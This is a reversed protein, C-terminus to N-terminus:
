LGHADGGEWIIKKAHLDLKYFVNGEELQELEQVLQYDEEELSFTVREKKEVLWFTAQIPHITMKELLGYTKTM